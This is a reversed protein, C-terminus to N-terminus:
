NGAEQRFDMITGVDTKSTRIDFYDLGEEQSTTKEFLGAGKQTSASSHFSAPVIVVATAIALVFLTLLVSRRADSSSSSKM